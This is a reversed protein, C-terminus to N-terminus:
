KDRCQQLRQLMIFNTAFRTEVPKLLELRSHSRFYALAAHHNAVFKVINHAGDIVDRIWKQKGIDELLLDLCHATCPSCVISPFKAM